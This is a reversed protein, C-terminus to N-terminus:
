RRRRAPGFADLLVRLAAPTLADHVHLVHGDAFRVEWAAAPAAPPAVQVEVLRPVPPRAAPADPQALQWKWWALTRAAIGQTAAFAAATLGSREWAAV